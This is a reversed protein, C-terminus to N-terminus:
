KSDELLSELFEKEIKALRKFKATRGHSVFEAHAPIYPTDGCCEGTRLDVPCGLCGWCLGCLACEESFPGEKSGAKSMNDWHQISAKLAIKTKKDM